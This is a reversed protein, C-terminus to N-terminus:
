KNEEKDVGSFINHMPFKIFTWVISCMVEQVNDYAGVKNRRRKAASNISEAM